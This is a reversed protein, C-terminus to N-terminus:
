SYGDSYGDSYARGTNCFYDALESLTRGELNVWRIFNNKNDYVENVFGTSAATSQLGLCYLSPDQIESLTRGGGDAWRIFNFKNLQIDYWM